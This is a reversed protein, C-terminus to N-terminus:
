SGKDRSWESWGQNQRCRLPSAFTLEYPFVSPLPLTLVCDVTRKVPVLLKLWSPPTPRMKITKLSTLSEFLPSSTSPENPTELIADCNKM